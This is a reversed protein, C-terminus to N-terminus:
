RSLTQLNPLLYASAKTCCKMPWLIHMKESGMWKNKNGHTGEMKQQLCSKQAERYQSTSILSMMCAQTMMPSIFCPAFIILGHTKTFTFFMELDMICMM